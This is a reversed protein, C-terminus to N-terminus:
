SSVAQSQVLQPSILLSFRLKGSAWSIQPIHSASFFTSLFKTKSRPSRPLLHTGMEMWHGFLCTPIFDWNLQLDVSPPQAASGSTQPM